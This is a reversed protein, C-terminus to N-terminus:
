VNLGKGHLGQVAFETSLQESTTFSGSRLRSIAESNEDRSGTIIM